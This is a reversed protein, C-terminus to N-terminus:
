FDVATIYLLPFSRNGSRTAVILIGIARFTTLSYLSIKIAAEVCILYADVFSFYICTNYICLLALVHSPARHNFHVNYHSALFM